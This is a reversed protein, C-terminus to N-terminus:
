DWLDWIKRDDDDTVWNYGGGGRADVFARGGFSTRGSDRDDFLVVM